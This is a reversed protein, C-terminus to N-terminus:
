NQWVRFGRGNHGGTGFVDVFLVPRRIIRTYMPHTRVTCTRKSRFEFFGPLYYYTSYYFAEKIVDGSFTGWLLLPSFSINPEPGRAAKIGLIQAAHESAKGNRHAVPWHSLSVHRYM